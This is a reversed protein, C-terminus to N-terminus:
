IKAVFDHAPTDGPPDGSGLGINFVVGSFSGVHCSHEPLLELDGAEQHLIVQGSSAVDVSFTTVHALDCFGSASFPNQSVQVISVDRNM